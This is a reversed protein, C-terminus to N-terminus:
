RFGRNDKSFTIWSGGNWILRDYKQKTQSFQTLQHMSAQAHKTRHGRSLTACALAFLRFLYKLDSGGLTPSEPLPSHLPIVLHTCGWSSPYPSRLGLQTPLIDTLM